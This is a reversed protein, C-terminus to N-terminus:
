PRLDLKGRGSEPAKARPPGRIQSLEIMVNISGANCSQPKKFVRCASRPIFSEVSVPKVCM